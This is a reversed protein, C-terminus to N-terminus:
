DTIVYLTTADPTLGDYEAQTLAVINTIGDGIVLESTDAIGHVSTTSSTHNSISTTITSAFNEDDGLAAALENLTDLASPAGDLIVSGAGLLNAIDRSRSM